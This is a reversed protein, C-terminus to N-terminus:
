ATVGSRLLAVHNRAEQIAETEDNSEAIVEGRFCVRFLGVSESLWTGPPFGLHRLSWGSAMLKAPM